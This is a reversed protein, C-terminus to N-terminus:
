APGQPRSLLVLNLSHEFRQDFDNEGLHRLTRALAPFSPADINEAHFGPTRTPSSQQEQILGVTFYMLTWATWAGERPTRGTALLAATLAEALALHNPGTPHYGEVSLRGGDRRDLLANRFRGVLTRIREYPEEPLPAAACGHLQADAMAQLLSTKDSVHWVVSNVRVGLRAAVRRLSLGDLGTEDLVEM